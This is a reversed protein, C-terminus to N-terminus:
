RNDSLIKDRATKGKAATAAVDKVVSGAKVTLVVNSVHFITNNAAETRASDLRGSANYIEIANAAEEPTLNQRNGVSM